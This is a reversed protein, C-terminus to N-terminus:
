ETVTGPEATVALLVASRSQGSPLTNSGATCPLSAGGTRESLTGVGATGPAVEVGLADTM